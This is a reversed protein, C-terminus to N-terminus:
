STCMAPRTVREELTWLAPDAFDNVTITAVPADQDSRHVMFTQGATITALVRESPFPIAWQDSDYRESVWAATEARWRLITAVDDPQGPRILYTM